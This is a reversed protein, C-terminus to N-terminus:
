NQKGIATKLFSKFSLDNEHEQLTTEINPTELKPTSNEKIDLEALTSISNDNSGVLLRRGEVELIYVHTKPSLSLKANVRMKDENSSKNIKHSYRKVLFLALGLGGVTLILTIFANMLPNELM